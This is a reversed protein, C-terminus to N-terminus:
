QLHSKFDEISCGLLNLASEHKCGDLMERMRNRLRKALRWQVSQKRTENQYLKYSPYNKITSYPTRTANTSCKHNCHKQDLAPLFEGVWRKGCHECKFKLGHDRRKILSEFINCRQKFKATCAANCRRKLPQRGNNFKLPKWCYECHKM